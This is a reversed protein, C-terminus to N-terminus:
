HRNARDYITDVIHLGLSEWSLTLLTLLELLELYGQVPSFLCRLGMLSLFSRGGGGVELGIEISLSSDECSNSVELM